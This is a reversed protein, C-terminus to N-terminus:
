RGISVCMYAPQSTDGDCAPMPFNLVLLSGANRTVFFLLNSRARNLFPDVALVRGICHTTRITVTRRVLFERARTPKHTGFYACAAMLFLVFAKGM